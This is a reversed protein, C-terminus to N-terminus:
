AAVEQVETEAQPLALFAAVVAPDFEIGAWDIMHKRAMEDSMAARFPRSSTLSFYTDVVRLLRAAMPIQQGELRDPYGSGNWYEHHWRVILQVGRGLGLKSAAQEGIVPHRQLDIREESTLIRAAQIYDRGMIRAGINRVLAAQQLVSRDHENLGLEIALENAREALRRSHGFSFGEFEDCDSAAEILSPDVSVENLAIAAM